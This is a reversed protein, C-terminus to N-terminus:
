IPRTWKPPVFTRSYHAEPSPLLPLFPPNRRPTHCCVTLDLAPPEICALSFSEEKKEGPMRCLVRLRIGRLGIAFTIEDGAM